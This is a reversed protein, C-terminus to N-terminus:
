PVDEPTTARSAGITPTPVALDLAGAPEVAPVAPVAPAAATSLAIARRLWRGLLAAYVLLGVVGGLVLQLLPHDLRNVALAAVGAAPLAAALPPWAAALLGRLDGGSGVLAFAYAPVIVGVGVILHAWGGGVIGHSRTAIIMAPILTLFWLVQILLVKMSAGQALLFAVVLDFVVRLAGFLGLAALVPASEDWKSGYVLHVLPAALVALAMGAPLALGWTVAAGRSLVAGSQAGQHRAFGPLAVSRVVQGIVSMPWNSINFALVYFGLATPGAVRAIVVNDLNLLAWSLMNAGAIPAGFHLVSRAVSRDIRYSPRVGALRFQLVLTVLQAVVRGVALGMAGWGAMVLAVTIVTSVVFDVLAIGFLTKQRFQRQLLAFPVVGAGAFALTVSLVALVGASDPSGLMTALMPSSAAMVVALLSGSLLGLAGVTPARREPNSHRILDASLGLDALTMLVAQVTLAVAYVGFQEPTLLRALVVGVVFTGGRLAISNLTSWAVGRRLSPQDASM